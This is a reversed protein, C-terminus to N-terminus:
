STIVDRWTWWFLVQGVERRRLKFFKLFQQLQVVRVQEIIQCALLGRRRVHQFVFDVELERFIDERFMGVDHATHMAPILVQWCGLRRRSFPAAPHRRPVDLPGFDHVCGLHVLFFKSPHRTRAYVRTAHVRMCARWARPKRLFKRRRRKRIDYSGGGYYGGRTSFFGDVWRVSFIYVGGTSIKDPLAMGSSRLRRVKLRFQHARTHAYVRRTHIRACPVGGWNKKYMQPATYM